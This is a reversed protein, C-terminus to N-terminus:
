FLRTQGKGMKLQNELEEIESETRAVMEKQIKLRMKLNHLDFELPDVYDPVNSAIVFENMNGASWLVWLM